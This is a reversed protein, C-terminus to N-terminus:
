FIIKAQVQQARNFPGGADAGTVQGFTASTPTTNVGTVIGHNFVDFCEYRAQLKLRERITVTKQLSLNVNNEGVQRVGDVHTPFVRMNYAGLQDASTTDFNATNFWQGYNAGKKKIASLDGNYIVNGFSLLPGNTLVYSGNLNFGSLIASKWGNNAWMKGKGFPLEYVSIVSFRSPRSNNSDEWSPSPDFSNAYYDRDYAFDKQYNIAYELGKNMRRTWSVSIEHFHSQGVPSEETVSSMQPYARLLSAYTATKNTFFSRSAIVNNYVAPNSTQLSAFNSIYFPNTVSANLATTNPNLTNGSSFYAQPVFALNHGLTIRNTIAGNYNVILAMSSGLQREVSAQWREQYAPVYNAPYYTWANGAEYMNGLSSGVPQTFRLNTTSNVPFPNTIPAVGAYPNGATWDGNLGVGSDNTPVDNTTQSFGSQDPAINLVNATDYFLGFGGHVVMRPTLLYSVAIRPLFRQNNEWARKSAGNVGAYTSGGVVNFTTSPVPLGSPTAAVYAAYNASYATQAGAAIPLQAKPDFYTIQQNNKETPGFEYEFRLGANVTLKPSVRWTDQVYLGYYPNSRTSRANIDLTSSSQIGLLFAAYALGLEQAGTSTASFQRTYTYDYNMEGEANGGGGAQSVQQRYEAGARISHAGHITTLAGRISDVKFYPNPATVRGMITYPSSTSGAFESLPLEQIGVSAGQSDLYSPLGVGAATQALTNPFQLIQENRDYGATLDFVTTNSFTHTWDAALVFVNMGQIGYGINDTTFDPSHQYYTLQSARVYFHDKQKLAYDVRGTYSTALSPSIVTYTYNGAGNNGVAGGNNPTPLEKNFFAIEPNALRNTPVVNGPFATRMYQGSKGAIPQVTLPDYITYAGCAAPCGPLDSFDGGREQITPVTASAPSVATFKDRITSFFFFLKNRGDFLKPIIVPGGFTLGANNEHVHPQELAAVKSACLAATETACAAQATVVAARAFHTLSQWRQDEYLDRVSGHYENTGNKTTMAVSIGLTKGEQADFGSTDTVMEGLEDSPAPYNLEHNAEQNIAGDLTFENKSLQGFTGILSNAAAANYSGNMYYNSSETTQTDRSFKLLLVPNAGPTPDNQIMTQTTVQGEMGSTSNILAADATVTVTEAAEGVALPLDVRAAQEADITIGNRLLSKFGKAAVAISYPGPLLNDVEYYGTANTLVTQTVGTATNAVKVEAKPLVGGGPDTLIGSISGRGTVQANACTVAMAIALIQFLLFKLGRKGRNGSKM